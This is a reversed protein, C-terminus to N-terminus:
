FGDSLHHTDELPGLGAKRGRGAGHGGYLSESKFFSKCRGQIPGCSTGAASLLASLTSTASVFDAASSGWLDSGSAGNGGM